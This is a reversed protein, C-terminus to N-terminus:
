HAMLVPLTANRMVMRTVGGLLMERIRSHTYAGMVLLTVAQSAASELLEAGVSTAIVRIDLSLANVGHWSLATILEQDSVDERDEEPVSLVSVRKAKLLLPLAGAVARAVELSGNWAVLAHNLIGEPAHRPLMLTPRGTEFVATNLARGTRLEYPDPGNLIILDSVRGLRVILSELDGVHHSWTAAMRDVLDSRERCIEKSKCWGDFHKRSAIEANLGEKEIEDASIVASAIVPPLSKFANIPDPRIFVADIHGKVARAIEWAAALQSDFEIGEFVPLLLNKM